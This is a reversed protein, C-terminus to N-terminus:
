IKSISENKTMVAAAIAALALRRLEDLCDATLLRGWVAARREL